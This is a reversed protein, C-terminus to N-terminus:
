ETTVEIPGIEMAPQGPQEPPDKASLASAAWLGAAAAAVAVAVGVLYVWPAPGTPVQSSPVRGPSPLPPPHSTSPADDHDALAVTDDLADIQITAGPFGSEASDDTM